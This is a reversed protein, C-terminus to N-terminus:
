AAGGVQKEEASAQLQGFFENWVEPGAMLMQQVQQIPMQSLVGMIEDVQSAQSQKIEKEMEDIIERMYPVGLKDLVRLFLLNGPDIAFRGQQALLVLSNFVDAKSKLIGEDASMEIDWDPYVINGNVDRLMNLRNFTGYQPKANASGSLRYPRDYDAFALAFDAIVRYLQKFAIVKYASKLMVKFNSQEIYLQAQKGSKVGPDHIGLSANTTGTIKQAWAFLTEIWQIGDIPTGTDIQNISGKLHIVETTASELKAKDDENDTVIKKRGKLFSEEYIYVAKKIAEHIDFVDEFISIGWFCKDRPIYPLPVIDWCKPIYYDVENPVLEIIPNGDEDFEGTEVEQYPPMEYYQQQGAEDVGARILLSEDLREKEMPNGDEDRRYFFKPLHKILLDGSWWFKGIDGEEDRYTTEIITYKRLGSERDGEVATGVPIRQDDQMQDYEEHLQAKGELDESTINPWKRLIYKETRNVPHHYHEMDDLCTAGRNPIIDKPHPNSLEIKGVYGAKKIQNNWHVKYFAGGFKTVRRENQLNLEELSPNASRVEYQVYEKLSEVVQEDDLSVAKFGPEPVSTDIQSEVFMRPFNIITRIDKNASKAKEKLNNFERDGHYIAEWEDFRDDWEKKDRRDAEFQRKWYDLFEQEAQEQTMQDLVNQNGTVKAIVKKASSILGM